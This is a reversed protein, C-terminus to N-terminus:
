GRQQAVRAGAYSPRGHGFDAAFFRPTCQSLALLETRVGTRWRDSPCCTSDRKQKTPRYQQSRSHIARQSDAFAAAPWGDLALRTSSAELPENKAGGHRFYFATYSAQRGSM